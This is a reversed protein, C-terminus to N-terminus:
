QAIPTKIPLKETINIKRIPIFVPIKDADLMNVAGLGIDNSENARFINRTAIKSSVNKLPYRNVLILSAILDFFTDAFFATKVASTKDEMRKPSACKLVLLTDIKEITSSEIFPITQHIGKIIVLFKPIDM